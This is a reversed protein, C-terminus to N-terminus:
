LHKYLSLNIFLTPTYESAIKQKLSLNINLILYFIFCRMLCRWHGSIANSGTENDLELLTIYPLERLVSLIPAQKVSDQLCQTNSESLVQSKLLHLHSSKLLNLHQCQSLKETGERGGRQQFPLGLNFLGCWIAYVQNIANSPSTVMVIVIIAIFHLKWFCTQDTTYVAGPLGVPISPLPSLTCLTGLSWCALM